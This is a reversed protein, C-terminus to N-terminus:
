QDGASGADTKNALKEKVVKNLGGPDNKTSKAM